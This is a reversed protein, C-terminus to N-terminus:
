SPKTVEQYPLRLRRHHSAATQSLSITIENPPLRDEHKVLKRISLM